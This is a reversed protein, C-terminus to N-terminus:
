EKHHFGGIGAARRFPDFRSLLSGGLRAHRDTDELDGQLIGVREEVSLIGIAHLAAAYLLGTREGPPWEAQLALRLAMYAVRQQHDVAVLHVLDLADSRSLVLSQLLVVPARLMPRFFRYPRDGRAGEAEGRVRSAPAKTVFMRSARAPKTMNTMEERPSGPITRSIAISDAHMGRGDSTIM